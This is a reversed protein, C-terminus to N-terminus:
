ATTGDEENSPTNKASAANARAQRRADAAMRTVEDVPIQFLVMNTARDIVKVIPRGTADEYVFKLYNSNRETSFETRNLYQVAQVVREAEVTDQNPTRSSLDVPLVLDPKSIDSM